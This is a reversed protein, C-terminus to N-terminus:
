AVSQPRAVLISGSRQAQRDQANVGRAKAAFEMTEMALGDPDRGWRYYECLVGSLYVGPHNTLIADYSSDGTFAGLKGYYSIQLTAADTPATYLTSGDMTYKSPTGTLVADPHTRFQQLPMFLLDIGTGDTNNLWIRTFELVAAPVTATGGSSALTTATLMAKTRVPPILWTRGDPGMVGRNLKDAVANAWELFLSDSVDTRETWSEFATQLTGINTIAM